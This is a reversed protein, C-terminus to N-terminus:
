TEKVIEEYKGIENGGKNNYLHKLSIIIYM